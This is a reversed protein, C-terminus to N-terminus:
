KAMKKRIGKTFILPIGKISMLKTSPLNIKNLLINQGWSKKMNAMAIIVNITKMTRNVTTKPRKNQPHTQGCVTNISNTKLGM